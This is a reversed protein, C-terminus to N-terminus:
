LTIFYTHTLLYSRSFSFVLSQSTALQLDSSILIEFYSLYADSTVVKYFLGVSAKLFASGSCDRHKEPCSLVSLKQTLEAM